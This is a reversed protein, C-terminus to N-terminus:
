EFLKLQPYEEESGFDWIDNSWDDYIGENNTPTQLESTTKAGTGTLGSVDSDFYSNTVAANGLGIGVLGNVSSTSSVNGVCLCNEVLCVSNLLGVLGGTINGGSITGGVRSNRITVVSNHDTLAVLGATLGGSVSGSVSSTEVISIGGMQSALLACAGSGTVLASVIEVGKIIADEAIGFM